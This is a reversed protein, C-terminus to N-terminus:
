FPYAHMLIANQGGVLMKIAVNVRLQVISVFYHTCMDLFIIDKGQRRITHLHYELEFGEPSIIIIGVFM